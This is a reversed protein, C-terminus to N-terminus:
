YTKQMKKIEIKPNSLQISYKNRLNGTTPDKAFFYPRFNSTTYPYGQLDLFM